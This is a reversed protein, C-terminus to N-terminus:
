KRRYKKKRTYKKLYSTLESKTVMREKADNIEAKVSGIDAKLIQLGSMAAKISSLEQKLNEFETVTLPVNSPAINPKDLAPPQNGPFIRGLLIIVAVILAGSWLLLYQSNELKKREAHPIKTFSTVEDQVFRLIAYFRHGEAGLAHTPDPLSFDLANVEEITMDICKASLRYCAATFDGFISRLKLQNSTYFHVLLTIFFLWIVAAKRVWISDFLREHLALAAIWGFM